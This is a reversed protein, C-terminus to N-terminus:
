GGSLVADILRELGPRLHAFARSRHSLQHKVLPSLEGFTKHYEPILFLPDYGFGATGRPERIIRGRCAGEAELRIQGFPDAVALACRFAAGRRDDPVAFIAEVLKRNNAADDCPEGAYRASLVGPAGQLADVTLGSDDALVWRDLARALEAAKKRANGAFTEASEDVEPAGPFEDLSGSRSEEPNEAKMRVYGGLPFISICYETGHFTKKLIKYGFGLSFTEVAVGFFKAVLFHGLEHIFITLGFFLSVLVAPYIWNTVIRIITEPSM